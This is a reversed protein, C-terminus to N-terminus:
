DTILRVRFLGFSIERDYRALLACTFGSLVLFLKSLLEYLHFSHGHGVVAQLLEAGCASLGALAIGRNLVGFRLYTLPTLYGFLVFLIGKAGCYTYFPLRPMLPIPMIELVITILALLTWSTHFGSGFLRVCLRLESHHVPLTNTYPM